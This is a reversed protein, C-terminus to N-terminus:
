CYIWKARRPMTMLSPLSVTESTRGEHPGHARRTSPAISAVGSGTWPCIEM